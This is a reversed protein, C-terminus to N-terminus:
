GDSRLVQVWGSHKPLRGDGSSRRRLRRTAWPVVHEWYYRAEVVPTRAPEAAFPAVPAETPVGLATLVRAAIRRHGLPNLHLRDPSWYPARRTEEDFFNDVFTVHDYRSSVDLLARTLQRGLRRMRPGSPLRESPDAGSLIVLHIGATATDTIVRQVAAILRDADYGPRLMDNGGGNFTMVTPVPDLALARPLQETVIPVLLRGRIALNAYSVPEDSADALGQAVLDAWGRVSGDALEDGVGETFSDGLAVYRM